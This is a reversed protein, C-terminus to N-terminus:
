EGQGHQHSHEKVPRCLSPQSGRSLSKARQKPLPHHRLLVYTAGAGGDCSRASAYALVWKRWYGTTLWGRVRTKLVPLEPSSLGRGHVILVGSRGRLIADKMFAEFADRAAEVNLGHLDIYDQISFDGRHLRQMMDRPVMPSNGEMYEPTNEVVFGKGYEVLEKLALLTANGCEPLPKPPPAKQDHLEALKERCIPKVDAMAARFLTEDNEFDERAFRNFNERPDPCVAICRSELMGKLGAFPKHIGSVDPCKM